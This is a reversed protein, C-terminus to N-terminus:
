IKDYVLHCFFYIDFAIITMIKKRVEKNTTIEISLSNILLHSIKEYFNNECSFNSYYQQLELSFYIKKKNNLM